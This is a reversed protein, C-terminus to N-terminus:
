PIRKNLGDKYTACVYLSQHISASVHPHLLPPAGEVPHFTPHIVSQVCSHILASHPHLSLSSHFSPLPFFISAIWM